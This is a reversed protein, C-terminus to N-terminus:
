NITKSDKEEYECEKHKIKKNKLRNLDRTGKQESINKKILDNQYERLEKNINDYAIDDEINIIEGREKRLKVDDRWNKYVDVTTNDINFLNKGSGDFLKQRYKEKDEIDEKSLSLSISSQMIERRTEVDEFQKHIKRTYKGSALLFIFPKLSKPFYKSESWKMMISYSIVFMVLQMLLNMIDTTFVSTQVVFGAYLGIFVLYIIPMFLEALIEKTEKKASVRDIISKYIFIYLQFWLWFFTLLKVLSILFVHIISLLKGILTIFTSQFKGNYNENEKTTLRIKGNSLKEYRVRPSLFHDVVRYANNNIVGGNMGYDINEGQKSFSDILLTSYHKITKDDIKPAKFDELEPLSKTILQQKDLLGYGTNYTSWIDLYPIYYNVEAKKSKGYLYELNKDQKVTINEGINIITTIPKKINEWATKPNVMIYTLMGLNLGLFIVRIITKRLLKGEKGLFYAITTQSLKVIFIIVLAIMLITVIGSDWMKAPSLGLGDLYDFNMLQQFLVTYETIRGALNVFTSQLKFYISLNLKFGFTSIFYGLTHSQYLEVRRDITDFNERDAKNMVSVDYPMVRKDLETEVTLKKGKTKAYETMCVMLNSLVENYYSGTYTQIEQLIKIADERSLVHKDSGYTDSIKYVGSLAYVQAISLVTEETSYKKTVCANDKESKILCQRYTLQGSDNEFKKKFTEHNDIIKKAKEYEDIIKKAGIVDQNNKAFKYASEGKIDIVKTKISLNDITKKAEELAKDDSYKDQFDKPSSFSKTSIGRAFYDLWYNQIFKVISERSNTYGHNYYSITSYNKADPTNIFSFGFLSKIGRWTTAFINDPVVHNISMYAKPYEGMYTYNPIKFGYKTIANKEKTNKGVRVINETDNVDYTTNTYGDGIGSIIQNKALTQLNPVNYYGKIYTSGDKQKIEKLVTFTKLNGIWDLANGINSLKFDFLKKIETDSSVYYIDNEKNGDKHYDEAKINTSFLAAFCLLMMTIKRIKSKM